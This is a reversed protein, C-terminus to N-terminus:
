GSRPRGTAAAQVQVRLRVSARARARARARIRVGVRIRVRVLNLRRRERQAARQEVGRLCVADAQAQSGLPAEGGDEPRVGCFAEVGIAPM